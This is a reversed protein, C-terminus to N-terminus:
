GRSRFCTRREWFRAHFAALHSLVTRITEDPLADVIGLRAMDDTVDELFAWYQGHEPDHIM